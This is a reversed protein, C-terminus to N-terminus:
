TCFFVRLFGLDKGAAAEDRVEEVLPVEPLPARARVILLVLVHRRPRCLQAAGPSRGGRGGRVEPLEM